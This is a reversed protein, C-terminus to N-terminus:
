HGVENQGNRIEEEILLDLIDFFNKNYEWGLEEKAKENNGYIDQIENPRFLTKDIEIKNQNINLKDFIYIVIDRLYLSEGSCIVYDGAKEKQLMLWMAEVYKPAYGFDRKVDVNGVKLDDAKGNAIALSQM